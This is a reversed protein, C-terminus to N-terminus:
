ASQPLGVHQKVHQQVAHAAAAAIDNWDEPTLAAYVAQQLLAQADASLSENDTNDSDEALV